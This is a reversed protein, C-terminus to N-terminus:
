WGRRTTPPEAPPVHRWLHAIAESDNMAPEAQPLQVADGPTAPVTFGLGGSKTPGTPAGGAPALQGGGSGPMGPPSMVGGAAATAQQDVAQMAQQGSAMQTADPGMGLAIEPPIPKGQESRELLNLKLLQWLVSYIQEPQIKAPKAGAAPAGPAPAAAPAAGPAPAPPAGGAMAAMPDMPPVGGPMAGGAPAGGTPPAAGGQAAAPDMGPSPVFGRKENRAQQIAAIAEQLLVGNVATFDPVFNM